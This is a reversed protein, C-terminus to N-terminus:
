RNRPLISLNKFARLLRNQKQNSALHAVGGIGAAKTVKHNINPLNDSSCPASLRQRAEKQLQSLNSKKSRVSGRPSSEAMVLM